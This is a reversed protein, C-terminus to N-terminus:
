SSAEQVICCCTSGDGQCRNRHGLLSTLLLVMLGTTGTQAQIWPAVLSETPFVWWSKVRSVNRVTAAAGNKGERGGRAQEQAPHTDVSGWQAQCGAECDSAQAAEEDSEAVAELVTASLEVGLCAAATDEVRREAGCHDLGPTGSAELHQQNGDAAVRTPLTVVAAGAAVTHEATPQATAVSVGEELQTGAEPDGLFTIRQTKKRQLRQGNLPTGVGRCSSLSHQNGIIVGSISSQLVLAPHNGSGNQASESRPSNFILPCSEPVFTDLRHLAMHQLLTDPPTSPNSPIDLSAQISLNSQQPFLFEGSGAHSRRLDPLMGSHLPHPVFGECTGFSCYICHGLSAAALAVGLGRFIDLM